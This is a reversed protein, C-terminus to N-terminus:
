AERLDKMSLTSNLHQKLANLNSKKKKILLIDYVYLIFIIPNSEKDKKIICATTQLAEKSGHKLM